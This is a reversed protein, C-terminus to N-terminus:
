ASRGIIGESSLVDEEDKRAAAMLNHIHATAWLFAVAAGVSNGAAIGLWVGPLGLDLIFAFVVSFLPTLVLTRIITTILANMGKGTGQSVDSLVSM